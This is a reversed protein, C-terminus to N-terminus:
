LIGTKLQWATNREDLRGLRLAVKRRSRLERHLANRFIAEPTSALNIAKKSIPQHLRKELPPCDYFMIRHLDGDRVNKWKGGADSKERRYLHRSAMTYMADAVAKPDDASIESYIHRFRKLFFGGDVLIAVRM